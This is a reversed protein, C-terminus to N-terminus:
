IAGQRRNEAHRDGLLAGVNAGAFGFEPEVAVDDEAGAGIALGRHGDAMPQHGGVAPAAVARNVEGFLLFM